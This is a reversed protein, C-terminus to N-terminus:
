RMGPCCAKAPCTAVETPRAAPPTASAARWAVRFSRRCRALSFTLSVKLHSDDLIKM